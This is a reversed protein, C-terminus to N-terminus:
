QDYIQGRLANTGRRTVFQVQVAGEAGADATLGSTSVTVQDVAGLRVPAFVFFSTGGSRFRQSNDNIGDLTINIAGGPLGNFTSFRADSSTAAGPTLLAFNLVNRGSLPLKAIEANSVTTSVTSATTEVVAARAEVRVQEEVGAVEIRIEVNSSRGTEVVLDSVVAPQFGAATALLRYHGPQLAPFVFGGELTSKASAAIGTGVDTAEIVAGPVVAGTADKITGVIQGTTRVQARVAPPAMLWVLSLVVGISPRSTM